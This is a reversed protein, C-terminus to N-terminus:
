EALRRVAHGRQRHKTDDISFNDNAQKFEVVENEWTAILGDLLQTLEGSGRRWRVPM